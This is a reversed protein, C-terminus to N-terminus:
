VPITPAGRTRNNDVPEANKTLNIQVGTAHVTAALRASNISEIPVRQNILSQALNLTKARSDIPVEKNRLSQALNLTKAKSDIAELRQGDLNAYQYVVQSFYIALIM